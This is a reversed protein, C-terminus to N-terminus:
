RGRLVTCQVSSESNQVSIIVSRWTHIYMQLQCLVCVSVRFGGVVGCILALILIIDITRIGSFMAVTDLGGRVV